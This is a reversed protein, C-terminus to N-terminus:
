LGGLQLTAVGDTDAATVFQAGLLPFFNAAPTGRFQGRLDTGSLVARVYALMGPTVAAEVEVDVRGQRIVSVQSADAVETAEAYAEKMPDFLVVGPHTLPGFACYTPDTGVDMTGNTGGQVPLHIREVQAFPSTTYLTTNGGAPISVGEVLQQGAADRGVVLMTTALWDAHSNLTFSLRQAPVIVDDGSVGDLDTLSFVQATAASALATAISDTDASPLAAMAAVQHETTGRVCLLGFTMVGEAVYGLVDSFGSDAKQGKRAVGPSASYSDQM